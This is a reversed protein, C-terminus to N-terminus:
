VVVEDTAILQIVSSRLIVRIEEGDKKVSVSPTSVSAMSAIVVLHRSQVHQVRIDPHVCASEEGACNVTVITRAIVRKKVHKVRMDSKVSVVPMFSTRMMEPLSALVGTTVVHNVNSRVLLVRLESKVRAQYQQTNNNLTIHHSKLIYPIISPEFRVSERTRTVPEEKIANMSV